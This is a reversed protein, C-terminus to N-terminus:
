SENRYNKDIPFLREVESLIPTPDTYVGGEGYGVQPIVGLINSNNNNNKYNKSAELIVKLCVRFNPITPVFLSHYELPLNLTRSNKRRNRYPILMRFLNQISTTVTALM